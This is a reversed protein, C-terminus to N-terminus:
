DLFRDREKEMMSAFDNKNSFRRRHHAVQRYFFDVCPMMFFWGLLKWKGGLLWFIRFVARGRLWIHGSPREILVLSNEHKLYSLKGSLKDEAAKGKFPAFVLKKETDIKILTAVSKRCLNCESDFFILQKM